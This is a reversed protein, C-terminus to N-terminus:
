GAMKAPGLCMASLPWATGNVFGGAPVFATWAAIITLRNAPSLTPCSIRMGVSQPGFMGADQSAAGGVICGVNATKIESVIYIGLSPTNFVIREPRITVDPQNTMNTASATGFVPNAVPNLPFSFEEIQMTSGKNPFLKLGRRITHARQAAQGHWLAMAQQKTPQSVPVPLGAAVAAVVHDDGFGFDGHMDGEGFDAGWDDGFDAGFSTDPAFGEDNSWSDHGFSSGSIAGTLAALAPDRLALQRANM